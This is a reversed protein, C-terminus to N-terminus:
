FIKSVLKKYEQTIHELVLLLFNLSWISSFMKSYHTVAYKKYLHLCGHKLKIKNYQSLWEKM